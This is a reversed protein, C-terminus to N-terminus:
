KVSLVLCALHTVVEGFEADVAEDLAALVAVGVDEGGVPLADRDEVRLQVVPEESWEGCGIRGGCWGCETLRQFGDVLVDVAIEVVSM